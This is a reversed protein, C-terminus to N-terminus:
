GLISELHKLRQDMETVTSSMDVVREGLDVVLTKLDELDDSLKKVTQNLGRRTDIWNGIVMLALSFLGIWDPPLSGTM